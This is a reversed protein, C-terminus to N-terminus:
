VEDSDEEWTELYMGDLKILISNYPYLEALTKSWLQALCVDVKNSDVTFIILDNKDPQFTSLVGYEGLVKVIKEKSM